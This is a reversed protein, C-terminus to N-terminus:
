KIVIWPQTFAFGFHPITEASALCLLHVCDAAFVHAKLLIRKDEDMVLDHHNFLIEWQEDREKFLM